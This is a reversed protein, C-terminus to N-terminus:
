TQSPLFAPKTNSSGGLHYTLKPAEVCTVPIGSNCFDQNWLDDFTIHYTIQQHTYYERYPICRYVDRHVLWENPDVTAFRESGRSAWLSDQVISSGPQLVGANVWISYLIQRRLEDGDLWPFYNGTFPTGDPEVMRRWCWAARSGTSEIRDLLSSTFDDDLENDDDQCCIYEGGAQLIGTNRARAVLAWVCLTRDQPREVQIAQFRELGTTTGLGKAIEKLNPCSEGVLLLEKRPHNQRLVSDIIRSRVLAVPRDHTVVVYSVLPPVPDSNHRIM